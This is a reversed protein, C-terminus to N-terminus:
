SALRNRLTKADCGLVLAAARISGAKAIELRAHEIDLGL